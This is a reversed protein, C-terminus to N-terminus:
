LVWGFIVMGGRAAIRRFCFLGFPNDNKIYSKVLKDVSPTTRGFDEPRTGHVLIGRWGLRVPEIGVLRAHAPIHQPGDQAQAAGALHPLGPVHHQAARHGQLHQALHLRHAQDPEHVLGLDLAADGMGVDAADVVHVVGAPDGLDGHLQHPAGGQGLHGVLQGHLLHHHDQGLHGLGDVRGVAQVQDVPVELRGVDEQFAARLPAPRRHHAVEAQGHGQVLRGEGESRAQQAGRREHGRLLAPPLAAQHARGRVHVGQAGGQVEGQEAIGRGQARLPGGQGPPPSEAERLGLGSRGRSRSVM